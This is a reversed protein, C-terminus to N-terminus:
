IKMFFVTETEELSPTEKKMLKRLSISMKMDKMLKLGLLKLIIKNAKIEKNLERLRYYLYLDEMSYMDGHRILFPNLDDTDIYHQILKVASPSKEIILTLTKNRINKEKAKDNWSKIINIFTIQPFLNSHDIAGNEGLIVIKNQLIESAVFDYPKLNYTKEEASLNSIGQVLLIFLFVSFIIRFNKKNNM